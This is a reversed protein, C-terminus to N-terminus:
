GGSGPAGMFKDLKGGAKEILTAFLGPYYAAVKNGSAQADNPPQSHPTHPHHDSNSCPGEPDFRDMSEIETCSPSPNPDANLQNPNSFPSTPRIPRRRMAPRVVGTSDGIGGM